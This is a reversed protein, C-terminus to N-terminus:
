RTALSDDVASEAESKAFIARKRKRIKAGDIAGTSDAGASARSASLEDRCAAETPALGIM